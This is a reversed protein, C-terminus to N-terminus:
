RYCWSYVIRSFNSETLYHALSHALALLYVCVHVYCIRPSSKRYPQDANMCITQRVITSKWMIQPEELLIEDYHGAGDEHDRQEREGRSFGKDRILVGKQDNYM